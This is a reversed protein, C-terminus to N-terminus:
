LGCSATHSPISSGSIPSWTEICPAVRECIFQLFTELVQSQTQMRKMQKQYVCTYTHLACAPYDDTGQPSCSVCVCVSESVRRTQFMM